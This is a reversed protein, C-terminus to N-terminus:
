RRRYRLLLHYGLFSAAGMALVIFCGAMMSPRQIMAFVAPPIYLAAGIFGIWSAWAKDYWLGVAEAFRLAAYLLTLTAILPLHPGARATIAQIISNPHDSQPNLYLHAALVRIWRATTHHFAVGAGALLAIIGKGFEVLAIARLPYKEPIDLVTLEEDGSETPLV